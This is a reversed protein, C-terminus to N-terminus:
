RGVYVRFEDSLINTKTKQGCPVSFRPGRGVCGRIEVASINTRTKQGWPTCFTRESGKKEPLEASEEIALKRLM